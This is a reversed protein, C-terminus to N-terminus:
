KKLKKIAELFMDAGIAVISAEVWSVDFGPFYAVVAGILGVRIITEGLKRWEFDDIVGDAFSNKAWGAISRVLAAGVIALPQLTELAM